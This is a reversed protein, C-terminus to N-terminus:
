TTKNYKIPQIKMVMNSDLYILLNHNPADDILFYILFKQKM